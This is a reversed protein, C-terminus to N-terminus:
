PLAFSASSGKFLRGEGARHTAAIENCRFEPALVARHIRRHPADHIYFRLLPTPRATDYEVIVRM